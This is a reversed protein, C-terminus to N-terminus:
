LLNKYVDRVRAAFQAGQDLSYGDAASFPAYDARDLYVIKDRFYCGNKNAPDNTQRDDPIRESRIMRGVASCIDAKQPITSNHVGVLLQLWPKYTDFVHVRNDTGSVQHLQLPTASLCSITGGAIQYHFIEEVELQINHEPPDLQPLFARIQQVQEDSLENSPVLIKRKYLFDRPLAKIKAIVADCRNAFIKYRVLALVTAALCVVQTIVALPGQNKNARIAMLASVAVATVAIILERKPYLGRIEKNLQPVKQNPDELVQVSPQSRYHFSFYIPQAM